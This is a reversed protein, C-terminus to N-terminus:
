SAKQRLSAAARFRVILTDTFTEEAGTNINTIKRGKLRVRRFTGLPTQVRDGEEMNALSAALGQLVKKVLHPQVEARDSIDEILQMPRM